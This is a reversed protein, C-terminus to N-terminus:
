FKHNNFMNEQIKMLTGTPCVFRCYPRPIFASLIVVAAGCVLIIDSASEVLFASFLEYDMWETMVPIWLCFMLVAWLIRRFWGLANTVSHPIHIKHKGCMGAIQQISGLPCIHSCYHQRKGFIPYVFAAVLMLVPIIGNWLGIGSSLYNVLHGYSIFEGCWFGLVAVNLCMQVIHYTKNKIILPLFCAALTVMLAFWFRVPHKESADAVIKGSGIEDLYYQLGLRINEMLADSSMTAGSVADVDMAAAEVVKKGKWNGLLESARRFFDPTETNPLAEIEKIVGDKSITIKLPTKGSFGTIDTLSSTDIIYNGNKDMESVSPHPDDTGASDVPESFSHGLISKNSVIAAGTMMMLCIVFAIIRQILKM